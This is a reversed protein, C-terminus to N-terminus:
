EYQCYLCTMHGDCNRSIMILYTHKIIFATACRSILFLCVSTFTINTNMTNCIHIMSVNDNDTDFPTILTLITRTYKRYWLSQYHDFNSILRLCLYRSAEKRLLLIIRVYKEYKTVIAGSIKRSLDPMTCLGVQFIKPINHKAGEIRTSPALFVDISFSLATIFLSSNSVNFLAVFCHKFMNYSWHLQKHIFLILRHKWYTLRVYLGDNLM